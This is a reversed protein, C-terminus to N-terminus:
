LRDVRFGMPQAVALFLSAAQTMPSYTLSMRLAMIIVLALMPLQPPLLLQILKYVLYNVVQQKNM